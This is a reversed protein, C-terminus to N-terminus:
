QRTRDKLSDLDVGWDSDIGARRAAETLLDKKSVDAPRSHLYRAATVAMRDRRRQSTKPNRMVGLMYELPSMGRTEAATAIDQPLPTVPKPPRNRPPRPM